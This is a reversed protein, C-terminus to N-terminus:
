KAGRKEGKKKKREGGPDKKEEISRAAYKTAPFYISFVMNLIARV